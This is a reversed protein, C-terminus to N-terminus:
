VLDSSLHTSSWTAAATNAGTTQKEEGLESSLSDRLRGGWDRSSSVPWCVASIHRKWSFSKLLCILIVVIKLITEVWLSSLHGCMFIHFSLCKTAAERLQVNLSFNQSTFSLDICGKSKLPHWHTDIQWLLLATVIESAESFYFVSSVTALSHSKLPSSRSTTSPKQCLPDVFRLSQVEWSSEPSVSQSVKLCKSVCSIVCRSRHSPHSRGKVM